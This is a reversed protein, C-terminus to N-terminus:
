VIQNTGRCKETLGPRVQLISSAETDLKKFGVSEFHRQGYSIWVMVYLRNSVFCTYWLFCIGTVYSSAPVMPALGPSTQFALIM